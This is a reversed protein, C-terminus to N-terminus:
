NSKWLFGVLFELLEFMVNDHGRSSLFKMGIGYPWM